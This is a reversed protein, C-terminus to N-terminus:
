LQAKVLWCAGDLSLGQSTMFPQVAERISDIAKVRVPEDLESLLRAMPGIHEYFEIAQDIDPSESVALAQDVSEININRFGALSLVSAVYDRDSFAFPGPAHPDTVPLSPLYGAAAAMPVRVWANEEAPRWCIFCLRGSQNIATSLNKFAAVPDVFFMVGFRSFLLSYSKDFSHTLADALVFNAPNETAAARKRAIDLMPESVDIGTVSAGLNALALSTAGCGCGIDLIRDVSGAGSEKLAIASLPEMMADLVQQNRAWSKGVPGNWVAIQDANQNTVAVSM